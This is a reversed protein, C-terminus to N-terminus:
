IPSFSRSTSAQPNSSGAKKRSRASCDPTRSPSVSQAAFTQLLQITNKPFEGPALRRVVLAGVIRDAALLPVVLRARYGAQLMIDRAVSTPEVGLDPTQMPQRQEIALAVAKSIEAHQDKVAEILPETMGYTARLQYERRAEDFM